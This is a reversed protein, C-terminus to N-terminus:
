QEPLSISLVNDGRLLIKGLKVHNEDDSIDEADRLTLNMHIDFDILIGQLTSDNRLRLLVMKNQHNGMLTSIEDAM